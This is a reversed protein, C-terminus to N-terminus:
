VRRRQGGSVGRIIANGVITDAAERLGLLDIMFEVKQQQLQDLQPSGLVATDANSHAVAFAFTERVTLKPYHTEGQDVFACLKSLQLGQQRCESQSLGNWRLSGHFTEGGRGMRGALTQVCVRACCRM